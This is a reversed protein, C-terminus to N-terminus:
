RPPVLPKEFLASGGGSLLFLVTDTPLLAETLDLVAQAGRFSNGDPVPHGAELCTIGPLEGMVHGYKTLVVGGQIPPELRRLAAQAMRWGAKGISVLFIQGPFHCGALARDVAEEPGVAAIAAHIISEVDARLLPDM